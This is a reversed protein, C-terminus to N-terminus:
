VGKGLSGCVERSISLIGQRLGRMQIELGLTILYRLQSEYPRCELTSLARVKGATDADLALLMKTDLKGQM